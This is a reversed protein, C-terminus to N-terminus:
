HIITAQLHDVVHPLKTLSFLDEEDTADEALYIDITGVKMEVDYEGIINDLLLFVLHYTKEDEADLETVYIRLNLRDKEIEYAFQIDAPTIIIDDIQIEMDFVDKRQRFAVIEWRDLDPAQKVLQIVDTFAEKSGNASVVFERVGDIEPGIEFVMDEHIKQIQELTEPLLEEEHDEFHYLADEHTLFWQWFSGYSPENM